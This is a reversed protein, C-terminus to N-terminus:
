MNITHTTKEFWFLAKNVNQRNIHMFKPYVASTDKNGIYHIFVLVTEKRQPLENCMQTIDQPFTVCRGKLAFTGDMPYIFLPYLLQVDKFLCNNRLLSDRLNKRFILIPFNERTLDMKTLGDKNVEFWGPHLNNNMLYDPDKRKRCKNCTYSEQNPLVNKEIHCQLCENCKLINLNNTVFEQEFIKEKVFIERETLM